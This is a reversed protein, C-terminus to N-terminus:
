PHALTFHTMAEAGSDEGVLVFPIVDGWKGVVPYSGVNDITGEDDAVARALEPGAREGLHVHVREGGAFSRGTFSVVTGPPGQYATLEGTPKLELVEFWLTVEAKSVDGTVTLAAGGAALKVPLRIEGANAFAGNADAQFTGVQRHDKDGLSVRLPEQRAWGSGTFAVRSGPRGAYSTLELSPGFPAPAFAAAVQANSQLSVFIIRSQGPQALQDPLEFASKAAIHGNEDALVQVVPKASRENLYVLVVEGPVFDDGSFGMLYYPPPSYNDLVVWPTFGQVNFGVSIPHQAQRGVFYLSYDGPQVFPVRVAQDTVNGQDDAQFSGIPDGGLGSLRVDVTERPSFGSGTFGFAHYPKASYSDLVITPVLGGLSFTTRASRGSSTGAVHLTHTGATLAPPMPLSVEDIRGDQEVRAPDLTAEVTGQASEVTVVTQEGPAFGQGLYNLHADSTLVSARMLIFTSGVDPTPSPAPTAARVAPSPSPLATPAPVAAPAPPAASIGGVCASCLVAIAPVLMGGLSRAVM